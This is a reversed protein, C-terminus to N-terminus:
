QKIKSNVRIFPILLLYALNSLKKGQYERLGIKMEAQLARDKEKYSSFLRDWVSLFFGFNSDTESRNPSHHVRHMDPTVILKRVLFELKTPLQINAHNFMASANLIVEFILLSTFEIGFIAVALMKILMSLIIELPHFRLATTTDFDPDSHHVRHLKWLLPSKHFLRHQWYITFDLAIVALLINWYGQIGAIQFLGIQEREIYLAIPTAAIFPLLKLTATNILSLGLNGLKHLLLPRFNKYQIASSRLPARWEIMLMLVLTGLFFLIRILNAQESSM